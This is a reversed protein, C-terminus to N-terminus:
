ITRLERRLIKGVTSKPLAEIFTVKKPVKYAALSARCHDRVSDITLEADAEQVIFVAVAEGTQDDPVGVCACEVVGVMSALAEEIENPFVNLGSVLIMDKKRDVIRFYGDPDMEAIDGTKFYGDETMADSTTGLQRWYGQMVQPGKACLEGAAGVDVAKGDDDRISIDTDPLPVGISSRFETSGFPNLTLVPSTESLGYGELIHRGTVSKWRESVAKQVPAGGGICLVLGRFDVDEIGQTHLLGNFLTNVGTFCTPPHAKLTEIFGPMDSPNTILINRAGLSFQGLFNVTLAFIHYLPLATIVTNKAQKYEDPMFALTQAINAAVNGHSLMAGKSLGTTGGTYQLFMLDSSTIVPQTFNENAGIELAALFPVVKVGSITPTEEQSHVDMSVYIVTKVKTKVAIKAFAEITTKSIILTECDANNLQHALERATYNPNVNVQVYGARANALLSIPFSIVNPLAVAVRAGQALELTVQLYAALHAARQDLERFTVTDGDCIFAKREAYRAIAVKLVKDVTHPGAQVVSTPVKADYANFWPKIDTNM